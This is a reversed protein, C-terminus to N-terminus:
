NHSNVFILVRQADPTESLRADQNLSALPFIGANIREEGERRASQQM